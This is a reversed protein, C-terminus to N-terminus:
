TFRIETWPTMQSLLWTLDSHKIHVNLSLQQLARRDHACTGAKAPEETRSPIFTTNLNYKSTYLYSACRSDGPPQVMVDVTIVCM